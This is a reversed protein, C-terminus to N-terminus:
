GLERNLGSRDSFRRIFLRLGVGAKAVEIGNQPSIAWSSAARGFFGRPSQAPVSHRPFEAM